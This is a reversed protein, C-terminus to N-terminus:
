TPPSTPLHSLRFFYVFSPFDSLQLRLILCLFFLICFKCTKLKECRRQDFNMDEPIYLIDLRRLMESSQTQDTGHM